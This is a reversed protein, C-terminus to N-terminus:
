GAPLRVTFIAGGGPANTATLTGGHAEVLDRSISLGLGSGGSDGARVFREFIREADADDVGPGSDAVEIHTSGEGIRVTVELEGGEPMQDLANGVLNSLVQHMRLPDVEVESVDASVVLESTVGQADFRGSYSALVDRALEAIDTPEPELRLRGAETMALVRLDDLLRDIIDVEDIVNGLSEPPHLGDIVAEIEGRIVTMPTRLEHGIDAIFRRRREDEAELSEAMRNFSASVAALPGPGRTEIRIGSEGDGLRRTADILEGVPAWTRGFMRRALFGFALVVVLTVAVGIWRRHGTMVMFGTAVIAGVITGMVILVFVFGIVRRFM